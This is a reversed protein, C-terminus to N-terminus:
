HKKNNTIIIKKLNLEWKKANPYKNKYMYSVKVKILEQIQLDNLHKLSPKERTKFIIDVEEDLLFPHGNKWEYFWKKFRELM